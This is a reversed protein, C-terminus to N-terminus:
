ASFRWKGDIYGLICKYIAWIVLALFFGLVSWGQTVYALFIFTAVGVILGMTWFMAKLENTM